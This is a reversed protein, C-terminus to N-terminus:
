RPRGERARVRVFVACVAAIDRGGPLDREDNDRRFYKAAKVLVGPVEDPVEDPGM